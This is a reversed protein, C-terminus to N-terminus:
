SWRRPPRHGWQPAPPGARPRGTGPYPGSRAAPPAGPAPRAGPAGCRELARGVLVRLRALRSDGRKGPLPGADPRGGGPPRARAPRRLRLAPRGAGAGDPAAGAGRGAGRRHRPRGGGPRPRPRAGGGGAAPAAGAQGRSLSPPRGGLPARGGGAPRAVPVAPPARGPLGRGGGAPDVGARRQGGGAGAGGGGPGPQLLGALREATAQQLNAAGLIAGSLVERVVWLQENGQEPQLGDLAVVIGGHTPSRPPSRRGWTRSAPGCCRWTSRWCTRCTASRSPWPALARGAGALDRGAHPARHVAPPRDAGGRGPRLGVGEGPAGGGPGLPVGHPRLRLGAPPLPLRPQHRPRAGDAVPADQAVGPPPLGPADRLAPLARDGAPVAGPAGRRVGAAAEDTGGDRAVRRGM